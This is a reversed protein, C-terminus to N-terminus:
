RRPREAEGALLRAFVAATLLAAAAGILAGGITDSLWHAGLYTRSFAMLIVWVAGAVAVWLRPFLVFLAVAITAANAVHGSPFSGFDSTIIMDEPRARGVLHKLVQVFAVSVLEAALFYMASWPRRRVFLLAAIVIPVVFIGFWGGGLWNMAYSFALLVPGRVSALYDQWATDFAFPKDVLGFLIGAALLLAAVLLGVGIWLSRAFTIPGTPM